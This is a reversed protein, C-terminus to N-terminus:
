YYRCLHQFVPTRPDGGDWAYVTGDDHLGTWFVDDTLTPIVNVIYL